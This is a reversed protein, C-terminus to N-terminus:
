GKCAEELHDWLSPRLRCRVIAIELADELAELDFMLTSNPLRRSPDLYRRFCERSRVRYYIKEEDWDSFCERQHLPLLGLMGLKENVREARTPEYEVDDSSNDLMVHEILTPPRAELADKVQQADLRMAARGSQISWGVIPVTTLGCPVRRGTWDEGGTGQGLILHIISGPMVRENRSRDLVLNRWVQMPVGETTTSRLWLGAPLLLELSWERWRDPLHLREIRELCAGVYASEIMALPDAELIQRLRRLHAETLGLDNAACSEAEDYGIWRVCGEPIHPIIVFPFDSATSTRLIQNWDPM